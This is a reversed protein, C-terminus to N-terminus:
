LYGHLSAIKESSQSEGRLDKLRRSVKSWLTVSSLRLGVRQGTRAEGAQGEQRVRPAAGRALRTQPGQLEKVGVIAEYGGVDMEWCSLVCGWGPLFGIVQGLGGARYSLTATSTDGGSARAGRRGSVDRLLSRLDCAQTKQLAESNSCPDM